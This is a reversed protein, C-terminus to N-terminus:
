LARARTPIEPTTGASFSFFFIFSSIFYSRRTTMLGGGAQTILFDSARAVSPVTSHISNCHRKIRIGSRIVVFRKSTADTRAGHRNRSTPSSSCPPPPPPPLTTTMTMTDIKISRQHSRTPSPCVCRRLRRFLRAESLSTIRNFTRARALLKARCPGNYSFM